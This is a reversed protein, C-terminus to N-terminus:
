LPPRSRRDSGEPRWVVRWGLVVGSHEYRQASLDHSGDRESDAIASDVQDVGDTVWLLEGVELHRVRASIHLERKLSQHRRYGESGSRPRNPLADSFTGIEWRGMCALPRSLIAAPPRRTSPSHSTVM